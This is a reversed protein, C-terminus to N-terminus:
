KKKKKQLMEGVAKGGQLFAETIYDKEKMLGSKKKKKERGELGHVMTDSLQFSRTV